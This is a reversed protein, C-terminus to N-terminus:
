NVDQDGDKGKQKGFYDTLMPCQGKEITAGCPQCICRCVDVGDYEIRYNCENFNKQIDEDDFNIM